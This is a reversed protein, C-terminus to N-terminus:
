YISVAEEVSDVNEMVNELGCYEILTKFSDDLIIEIVRCKVRESKNSRNTFEIITYLFIQRRKTDHIRIEYQKKGLKVATFYPEDLSLYSLM